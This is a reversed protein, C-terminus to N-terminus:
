SFVQYPDIHLDNVTCIFFIQKGNVKKKQNSEVLNKKRIYILSQQVLVIRSLCILFSNLSFYQNVKKNHIHNFAKLGMKPPYQQGSREQSHLDSSQLYIKNFFTLQKSPHYLPNFFTLPPKISDLHTLTSSTSISHYGQSSGHTTTTTGNISLSLESTSPSRHHHYIHHHHHHVHIESNSQCSSSSFSNEKLNTLEILIEEFHNLSQRISPDLEEFLNSLTQHIIAYERGLDIDCKM